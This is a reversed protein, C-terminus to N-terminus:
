GIGLMFAYDNLYSRRIVNRAVRAHHQAARRMTTEIATKSNPLGTAALVLATSVTNLAPLRSTKWLTQAKRVCRYRRQAEKECGPPRHITMDAAMIARRTMATRTASSESDSTPGAAAAM